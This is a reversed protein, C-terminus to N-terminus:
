FMCVSCVKTRQGPRGDFLWKGCGHGCCSVVAAAAPARVSSARGREALRLDVGPTASGSGMGHGEHLEEGDQARQACVVWVFWAAWRPLCAQREQSERSEALWVGM